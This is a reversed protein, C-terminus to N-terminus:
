LKITIWCMRNMPTSIGISWVWSRHLWVPMQWPTIWTVLRGTSFMCYAYAGQFQAILNAYDDATGLVDDPGAKIAGIPDEMAYSNPDGLIIYDPDGSGTPDGALWDVLAQAALTRTVNCNGQGDFLDPDGVDLCDSGKSKLHNVAATFRAGSSNEEFTQALTPRNKTDLFRPDVATTLIQYAGVPTVAAPRYIMGVKIADTGIVGTDIYAYTGPATLNNLGAVIDALPEVGPTNEMENLGIVDANLGILAALLKNRQRQFELPQDSDAGRCEMDLLPGCKNDLPDDTPYDLTLFYNLTNMAALRLNGGVPEPAAPRPNNATYDAPGTPFIRYLSFDYGLVGVTNQVLDGGRFTNTLSFPLGNPHRLVFPNQYSVADDLTIRRLSNQLALDVAPAGPEVISTPTFARAQGELPLALVIEGYRDYNFYESIVLSQPLRVLMGEYREPYALEPFPMSVDTPTVSGTGCSIINSAPVASSNSNSGNLTTQNFRERAYGTVRVLQGASVFNNSGTFVFIGDSTSPDADGTIDQLYFGSAVGTTEFDGVVVGETTVNGTVAAAMGNGQISYIPTFPLNCVDYFTTFIAAYNELMADPPDVIDQDTVESALVTLTCTENESFDVDPNLTFVMPGGSFAFTHDGSSSCSLTFPATSLNVDESFTVTLDDALAVNMAGNAPTTSVVTPAADGVSCNATHAGLGTFTDTAYGDWELAPDFADSGNPDGACITSKRRLTNDATSTLGTGWETGPDVGIQGIADIITTGKRLIVADDGNFLGAGSTLDAQALIAAAASSHAVVFVDGYALTGTLNLTVSATTGGNSFQQVNYGGAALDVPAGTGNYVELAKNFSSGEIYESFFLDLPVAAQAVPSVPALNVVMALITAILLLTGQRKM